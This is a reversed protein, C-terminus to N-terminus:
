VGGQAVPDYANDRSLARGPHFGEQNRMLIVQGGRGRFAGTGDHCTPTALGDSMKSGAEGFRVYRFGAPLLLLPGAEDTLPGYGPRSGEGTSGAASTSPEAEDGGGCAMLMEAISITAASAFGRQVVERRTLM